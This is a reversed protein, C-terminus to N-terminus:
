DVESICYNSANRGAGHEKCFCIPEPTGDPIRIDTLEKNCIQCYGYRFDNNIMDITLKYQHGKICKGFGDTTAQIIRHRCEPCYFREGDMYRKLLTKKVQTKDEKLFEKKNSSMM